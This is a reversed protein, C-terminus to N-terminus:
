HLHQFNSIFGTSLPHHAFKAKLLFSTRVFKHFENQAKIICKSLLLNGETFVNHQQKRKTKMM